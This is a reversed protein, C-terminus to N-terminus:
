AEQIQKDRRYQDLPAAQPATASTSAGYNLNELEAVKMANKQATSDDSM